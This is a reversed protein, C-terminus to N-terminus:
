LNDDSILSFGAQAPQLYSGVLLSDVQTVIGDFPARVVSDALIREADAVAAQAKQFTPYHDVPLGAQGGLQALVAQAKAKVVAVRQLNMDLEHRADDYNNKSVASVQLLQELRRLNEQRYPLESQAQVVETLAQDYSAKLNMRENRVTGLEARASALAMEFAAARLRFLVQGKSVQQNDRVEVAEVLGSVDTAVGARDAQIYANDTSIYRGGSLYAWSVGLLILPLALFLGTRARSARPAQAAGNEPKATM